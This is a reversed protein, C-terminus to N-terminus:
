FTIAIGVLLIVDFVVYSHRRGIAKVVPGMSGAGFIAGAAIMLTIVSLYTNVDAAAWQLDYILNSQMGNFVGLEFGFIIYGISINIMYFFLYCWNIEAEPEADGEILTSQKVLTGQRDLVIPDQVKEANVEVKVEDKHEQETNNNNMPRDTDINDRETDPVTNNDLLHSDTHKVSVTNIAGEFDKARLEHNGNKHGNKNANIELKMIDGNENDMTANYAIGQNHNNIDHEVTKKVNVGENLAEDFGSASQKPVPKVEATIKNSM